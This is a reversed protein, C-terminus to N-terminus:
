NIEMKKTLFDYFDLFPQHTRTLSIKNDDLIVQEFILKIFFIFGANSGGDANSGGKGTGL